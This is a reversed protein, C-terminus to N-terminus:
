AVAGVTRTHQANHVPEVGALHSLKALWSSVIESNKDIMRQDFCVIDPMPENGEIRERIAASAASSIDESDTHVNVGIVKAVGQWFFLTCRPPHPLWKHFAYVYAAAKDIPSGIYGKGDDTANRKADALFTTAKQGDHEPYFTLVIDPQYGSADYGAYRKLLAVRDYDGKPIILNDRGDRPHGKSIRLYWSQRRLLVDGYKTNKTAFRTPCIEWRERLVAIRAIMLAITWEFLNDENAAVFSNANESHMWKTFQKAM